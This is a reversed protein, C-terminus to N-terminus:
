KVIKRIAGNPERVIYVAAGHRSQVQRGSLDFTKRVANGEGTYVSAIASPISDGGMFRFSITGDAHEEINTIDKSMFFEGDENANYVVAAPVSTDTLECNVFSTSDTTWPYPSTSLIISRLYPSITYPTKILEADIRAYAEDMWDDYNMGDAHVLQYDLKTPNNNLRNNTWTSANYNVHFITLGHGPLGYDWGKQQRNELLYFENPTNRVLYVEGGDSVPAMNRVTVPKTLEVPTQWGLLMKELASYNPPCWGRNTFNGGDMLDWEDLVSFSPNSTSTPYADPLGLSHTFEHCITGIGCSTQNIWLEASCSYNSITFGNSTITNFYSTNPWVYGYSREDQNGCFGACVYIIQNIRGDDDWDYPSLDVHLSDIVKLTADHLLEKAYNRTKDTPKAYPQAKNNMKVPGFIDFKLNFLGGSQERFYDAVCGKGARQNYGPWNFISDYTERPKNFSFDFDSYSVLIVAQRYVKDKDWKKYVSPLHRRQAAKHIGPLPTSAETEALCDGRRFIMEQAAAREPLLTFLYFPLFWKVMNSFMNIYKSKM